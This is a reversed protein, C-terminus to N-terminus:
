PASARRRHFALRRVATVQANPARGPAHQSATRQAHRAIERRVESPSAVLTPSCCCPGARAPATNTVISPVDGLVCQKTNTAGQWDRSGSAGTRQGPTRLFSSRCVTIQADRLVPGLKTLYLLSERRWNTAMQESAFWTMSTALAVMVPYRAAWRVLDPQGSTAEGRGAGSRQDQYPDAQTNYRHTADTQPKV